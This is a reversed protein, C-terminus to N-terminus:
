TVSDHSVVLPSVTTVVDSTHSGQFQPHAGGGGGAESPAVAAQLGEEGSAEGDTGKEKREAHSDAVAEDPHGQEGRIVATNAAGNIILIIIGPLLLAFNGIQRYFNLSSSIGTADWVSIDTDGDEIRFDPFKIKM